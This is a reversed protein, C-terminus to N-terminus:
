CANRGRAGQQALRGRAIEAVSHPVLPLTLVDRWHSRAESPRGLLQCADGALVRARAYDLPDYDELIETAALAFGLAREGDGDGICCEGLRSLALGSGRQDGLARLTAICEEYISKAEAVAGRLYCNWAVDARTRAYGIDDCLDTYIRLAGSLSEDALRYHGRGQHVSAVNALTRAEDERDGKMAFLQRARRLCNLAEDASGGGDLHIMGITRLARATTIQDEGGELMAVADSLDKLAAPLEGSRAKSAGRLNLLAAEASGDGLARASSQATSLLEIWQTVDHHREFYSHLRMTLQWATRHQGAVAAASVAARLNAAEADLWSLASARDCFPTQEPCSPNPRAADPFAVVMAADARNLYWGLVRLLAEAAETGPEDAAVESAYECILDPFQVRDGFDEVLHANVLKRILRRADPVARDLLVAAADIVADPGPHVGLLRFARAADEDLAHYSWSFVARIEAATDDAVLEDLLGRSDRLEDVFEAITTEPFTAVREGVISVALPLGGCLEALRRLAGDEAEARDSGVIQTLLTLSEEPSFSTVTVRAAGHRAVLNGLRRRSTVIVFCGPSGPLLDRVQASSAANDLVFLLRKGAVASRFLAARVDIDYDGDFDAVGISRILRALAEDPQLAASHPDFGRLNMYIQGDPFLDAIAHAAHVAFATKGVGAVGEVAAIGVCANRQSTVAVLERVRCLDYDRGVFGHIDHPLEAPLIAIPTEADIDPQEPVPVAAPGPEGRLIQAHLEILEPNPDVGVENVLHDRVSRYVEFAEAQQGSCYLATMAQAALRERMPQERAMASLEPALDRHRGLALGIDAREEVLSWRLETLRVRELEAHPGPLGALPLGRWLALADDLAGLADTLAGGDRALQAQRRLQEAAMADVQEGSVHLSYGARGGSLISEASRQRGPELLSRLGSIYTYISGEATSPADDGWLGAILESITVVQGPRSALIALVGSRLPTGAAVLHDNVSVRVAGLLGIRLRLARGTTSDRRHVVTSVGDTAARRVPDVPGAM